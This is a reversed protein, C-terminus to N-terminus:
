SGEDRETTWIAPDFDKLQCKYKWSNLMGLHEWYYTIGMDDDEITFDPYKTMGGIELPQEYTYDIGKAHLMNAIIVESKSRVAEKRSTVHILKEELFRDGVLVPKPPGFLNTL